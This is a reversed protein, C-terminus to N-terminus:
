NTNWKEMEKELHNIYDIVASTTKSYDFYVKALRFNAILFLVNELYITLKTILRIFNSESSFLPGMEVGLFEKMLYDKSSVFKPHNRNTTIGSGLRYIVVPYDYFYYNFKNETFLLMWVLHDGGNLSLKNEHFILPKYHSALESARHINFNIAKASVWSGPNPIPNFKSLIKLKNTSYKIRFYSKFNFRISKWSGKSKYSLNPSFLYDYKKSLSIFEFLNVQNYFDDGDMIHYFKCRIKSIALNQTESVGFNKISRHINSNVFLDSHEILFTEVVNITNDNSFDDIIDILFRRNEGFHEIQYKVSYLYYNIYKEFNYTKVIFQFYSETSM